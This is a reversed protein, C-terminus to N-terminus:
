VPAKSGKARPEPPKETGDLTEFTVMPRLPEPQGMGKQEDSFAKWAEAYVDPDEPALERPGIRTSGDLHHVFKVTDGDMFFKPGRIVMQRELAPM